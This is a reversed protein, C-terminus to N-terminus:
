EYNFIYSKGSYDTLNVNWNQLVTANEASHDNWQNQFNLCTEEVENQNIRTLGYIQGTINGPNYFDDHMFIYYNEPYAKRPPIIISIIASIILGM